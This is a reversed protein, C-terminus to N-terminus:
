FVTPPIKKSECQIVHPTPHQARSWEVSQPCTLGQSPGFIVPHSLQSTQKKYYQPSLAHISLYTM